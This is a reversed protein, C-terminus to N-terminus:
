SGNKGIFTVAQLWASRPFLPTSPLPFSCSRLLTPIFLLSHLALARPLLAPTVLPAVTALPAAEAAPMRAPQALGPATAPPELRSAQRSTRSRVETLQAELLVEAGRRMSVRVPPVAFSPPAVWSPRNGGGGPWYDISM